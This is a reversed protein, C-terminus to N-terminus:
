QLRFRLVRQIVLAAAVAFTMLTMVFLVTDRPGFKSAPEYRPNVGRLGQDLSDFVRPLRWGFMLLIIVAFILMEMPGLGFM